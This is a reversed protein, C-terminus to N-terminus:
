PLKMCVKTDATKVHALRSLKVLMAMWISKWFGTVFETEKKPLSSTKEPLSIEYPSPIDTEEFDDNNSIGNNDPDEIADYLDIYRNLFIFAMDYQKFKRNAEGADLFAKDSRIERCYRLLSTCM